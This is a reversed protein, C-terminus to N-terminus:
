FRWLVVIVLIVLYFALLQRFHFRFPKKESAKEIVDISSDRDHQLIFCLGCTRKWTFGDHEDLTQRLEHHRILVLHRRAPFVVRHIVYGVLLLILFAYFPVTRAQGLQLVSAVVLILIGIGDRVSIVTQFRFFLNLFFYLMLATLFCNLIFDLDITM